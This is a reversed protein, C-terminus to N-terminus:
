EIMRASFSLAYWNNSSICAGGILISQDAPNLNCFRSWTDSNSSFPSISICCLAVSRSGGCAAVVSHLSAALAAIRLITSSTM